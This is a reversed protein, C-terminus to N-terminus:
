RDHKTLDSNENLYILDKATDDSSDGNGKKLYQQEQQRLNKKHIISEKRLALVRPLMVLLGTIVGIIFTVLMLWPLPTRYSAYFPVNFNVWGRNAFTIGLLIVLVICFFLYKILKM